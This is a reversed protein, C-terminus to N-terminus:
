NALKRYYIKKKILEIFPPKVLRLKNAPRISQLINIITYTCHTNTNRWHRKPLAQLVGWSNRM